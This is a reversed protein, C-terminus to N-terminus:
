SSGAPQQQEAALNNAGLSSPQSGVWAHGDLSLSLRAATAADVQCVSVVLPLPRPFDNAQGLQRRQSKPSSSDTWQRGRRGRPSWMDRCCWGVVVTYHYRSCSWGYPWPQGEQRLWGHRTMKKSFEMWLRENIRFCLLRLVRWHM